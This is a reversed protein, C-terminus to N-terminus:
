LDSNPYNKLHWSVFACLSGLSKLWSTKHSIVIRCKKFSQLVKPCKTVFCLSSASVNASSSCHLALVFRASSHMWNKKKEKKDALNLNLDVDVFIYSGKEGGLWELLLTFSNLLIVSIHGETESPHRSKNLPYKSTFSHVSHVITM